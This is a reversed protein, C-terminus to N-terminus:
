YAADCSRANEEGLTTAIGGLKYRPPAVDNCYVSTIVYSFCNKTFNKRLKIYEEILMKAIKKDEPM